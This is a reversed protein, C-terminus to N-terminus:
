GGPKCSQMQNSDKLVARGALSTNINYFHVRFYGPQALNDATILIQGGALISLSCAFHKTLGCQKHNNSPAQALTFGSRCSM